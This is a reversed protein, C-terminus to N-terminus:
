DLHAIRAIEVVELGNLTTIACPPVGDSLLGPPVQDDGVLTRLLDTTAGGHTVAVVSGQKPSLDLLFRRMREGTQRSSEGAPPVFDRDLVSRRWNDLFEEFTGAGEWNVRERLRPDPTVTLGLTLAIVEATQWARRQPSSFLSRVAIGHLWRAARAAQELGSLTLGPDGPLPEKEAHQILYVLAVVEM